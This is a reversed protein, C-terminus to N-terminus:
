NIIYTKIHVQIVQLTCTNPNSLCAQMCKYTCTCICPNYPVHVLLHNHQFNVIYKCQNQM